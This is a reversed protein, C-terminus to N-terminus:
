PAIQSPTVRVGDANLVRGKADLWSTAGSQGAELQRVVVNGRVPVEPKGPLDFFRVARVIDPVVNVVFRDGRGGTAYTAAEIEAVVDDDVRVSADPDTVVPLRGARQAKRIAAARGREQQETLPNWVDVSLGEGVLVQSTPGCIPPDMPGRTPVVALCLKADDRRAYATDNARRQDVPVLVAIAGNPLTALQRVAATRIAGDQPRFAKLAASSAIGRDADTQPRRLVSLHTLQRNPPADHTATPHGTADNGLVPQWLGRSAYAGGSFVLLGIVSYLGARGHGPRRLRSRRRIQVPRYAPDTRTAADLLQAELGPLLSM